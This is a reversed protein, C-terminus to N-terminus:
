VAGAMFVICLVRVFSITQRGSHSGGDALAVLWRNLM